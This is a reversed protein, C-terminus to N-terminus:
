NLLSTFIEGDVFIFSKKISNKDNQRRNRLLIRSKDHFFLRFCNVFRYFKPGFGHYFEVM